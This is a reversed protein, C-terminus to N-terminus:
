KQRNKLNLQKLILGAIHLLWVLESFLMMWELFQSTYPPPPFIFLISVTAPVFIMYIGLLRPINSKKLVIVLGNFLAGLALGSFVVISFLFHLNLATTRDESFLGIGFLGIAGVILWFLGMIAIIDIIIYYIRKYLNENSNFIIASSGAILIKTSFFFTPLIFIATVMAITDLIWPAPTYRFSGLDSIYNDWLHYGEPGLISAIIVAITLGPLFTLLSVKLSIKVLRPNAIKSLYEKLKILNPYKLSL